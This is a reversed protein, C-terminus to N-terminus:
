EYMAKTGSICGGIMRASVVSASRRISIVWSRSTDFVSRMRNGSTRNRMTANNSGVAAGSNPM